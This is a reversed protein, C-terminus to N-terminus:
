TASIRPCRLVTPAARRSSGDLPVLRPRRTIIGLLPQPDIYEDGRRLGFYFRDGTTAISQGVRVREGEAVGSTHLMGYTAALGDDHLVVVYRVGAVVGSFTVIGTAAARVLTDLPVLFELGRHGACYPCAPQRFPDVIPAVVPPLYCSRFSLLFSLAAIIIM